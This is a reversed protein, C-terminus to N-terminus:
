ATESDAPKAPVQKLTVIMAVASVIVVIALFTTWTIPESLVWWGLFVAIVPNIYTYTAVRSAVANKLLWMYSTLAVLSGFIALYVVAAVSSWQVASWDISFPERLLVSVGLLVTGGCLMQVGTSMFVNEPLDVQRSHLSGLSWFIPACVVALMSPLHWRAQETSLQSPGILLVIGALGLVLGLCVRWGPKPGRYFLWDFLTMWLPMTAIVVACIGSPIKQIGWMVLGNGGVVLCCGIIAAWKWQRLTPLGVGRCTMIAILVLAAVVFRSGAIAFPPLSQVAIAMALYTTGWIVYIAAFALLIKTAPGDQSM